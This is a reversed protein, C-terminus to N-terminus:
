VERKKKRKKKRKESEKTEKRKERKKRAKTTNDETNAKPLSTNLPMLIQINSLHNDNRKSSRAYSPISRSQVTVEAEGGELAWNRRREGEGRAM